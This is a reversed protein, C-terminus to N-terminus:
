TCNFLIMVERYPANLAGCKPCGRSRNKELNYSSYTHGCQTCNFYAHYLEQAMEVIFM